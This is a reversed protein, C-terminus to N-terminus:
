GFPRDRADVVGRVLGIVRGALAGTRTASGPPSSRPNLSFGLNPERRWLRLPNRSPGGARREGGGHDARRSRHRDGDDRLARDRSRPRAAWHSPPGAVAVAGIVTLGVLTVILETRGRDPSGSRPVARWPARGPRATRPARSSRSRMACHLLALVAAGVRRSAEAPALRWLSVELVVLRAGRHRVVGFAVSGCAATGVANGVLLMYVRFLRVQCSCGFMMLVVFILM